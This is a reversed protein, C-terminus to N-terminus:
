PLRPVSFGHVGYGGASFIRPSGPLKVARHGLGRGYPQSAFIEAGLPGDFARLVDGAGVMFRGGPLRTTGDLQEASPAASGVEAYTSGDFRRVSLRGTEDGVFLDLGGATASASLSTGQAEITAELARSAGDFIRVSGLLELVAVEVAGDGDTDGVVLDIAALFSGELALPEKEAGTTADYVRVFAGGAGSFDGSTGGLVEVVGDGDIDAVEVSRFESLDARVQTTWVLALENSPSLSYAELIGDYRWDTAVLVEDRGDGNLDRVVLDHLGTFSNSGGSVAPSIARLTLQQGDIVVIRGSADGSESGFSAVVMEELGDGDLDGIEPGVFPGDLHQSRWVTEGSPWDVVHLHDPGTSNNGAGFLLERQGDLDLDVAAIQSVGADPNAVSWEEVLTLADFAHVSGWQGDGILIEQTGDQDIDAALAAGVDLDVPIAWKEIQSEVDFARVVDWAEAAILEDRGDADIDVAQVEIGFGAPLEWEVAHTASDIVFGGTTAIELAPDDDMQGVAIDARLPSSGAGPVTWQRYGSGYAFLSRDQCSSIIEDSGNGDLDATTMGLLGGRAFCPGQQIARLAKTRQNYRRVTGDFLALVIDTGGTGRRALAIRRIRQPLRDSVYVQQFDRTAPSYRLAHWVDNEGFTTTSGGLYLEVAGDNSASVIGSLGIGSGLAGFGWRALGETVTTALAMEDLASWEGALPDAAAEGQDGASAGVDEEASSQSPADQSDLHDGATCAVGAAALAAAGILVVVRDHFRQSM